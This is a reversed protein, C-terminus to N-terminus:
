DSSSRRLAQYTPSPRRIRDHLGAVSVQVESRVETPAVYAAEPDQLFQTTGANRHNSATPWRGEHWIRTATQMYPNAFATMSCYDLTTSSNIKETTARNNSARGPPAASGSPAVARPSSGSRKLAQVLRSCDAAEVHLDCTTAAPSSLVAPTVSQSRIVVLWRSQGDGHRTSSTSGRLTLLVGTRLSRQSDRDSFLQHATPGASKKM